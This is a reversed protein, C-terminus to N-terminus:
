KIMALIGVGPLWNADKPVDPMGDSQDGKFPMVTLASGTLGYQVLSNANRTIGLSGSIMMANDIQLSSPFKVVEVSTWAALATTYKIQGAIMVLQHGNITLTSYAFRGNDQDSFGNVWTLGANSWPTLTAVDADTAVRHWTGLVGNNVAVFYSSGVYQNVRITGVTFSNGPVVEVVYWTIGPIPSNAIPTETVYWNGAYTNMNAAVTAFDTFTAQRTALAGNIPATFTKAGSITQDTTLNVFSNNQVATQYAAVQTKVANLTVMLQSNPDIILKLADNAGDEITKCEALIQAKLKEFDTVFPKANIGMSVKDDLVHLHVNVTSVRNGDADLIAFFTSDDDWDGPAQFCEAPFYFTVRGTSLGDGTQDAAATGNVKFPTGKPDVGDFEVTKGTLDYNLGDSKFWLKVYSQSDGVRGNFNPTLDYLTNNPRLLDLTVYSNVAM